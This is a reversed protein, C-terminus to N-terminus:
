WTRILLEGVPKAKAGGGITYTTRLQEARFGAYIRRMDRHDNITLIARGKLSSM